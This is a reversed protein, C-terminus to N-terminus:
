FFSVRNDGTRGKWWGDRYGDQELVKLVQGERVSLEDRTQADYNKLVIARLQRFPYLLRTDERLLAFNERLSHNEYYKILDEISSFFRSVSLFYKKADGPGDDIMSIRMHKASGNYQLSVAYDGSKTGASDISMRVLFTGDERYMLKNRAVTREMEGVYWLKTALPDREIPTLPAAPPVLKLPLGCRGSFEICDKHVACSCKQCLYGQFILGKLYKRCYHCQIPSSFTHLELNHNTHSLARPQVNDHAEAIAKIVQDKLELTRVYITYAMEQAHKVLLFSYSRRGQNNLIARNHIEEVHYEMINLIDRYAFQNGKLQKCILICKDFIFVYRNRTKQDDHAKIKLETDKRLKGYDSLRMDPDHEWELITEQLNNIVNLHEVDRHAENIYRAVDLMSEWATKLESYEDHNKDTLEILKELLLHYKLIRQMPVSLVDRLKFRGNNVEKEYSIITQNFNEDEDCLEQLLSTAKTLNACYGGYILFKEKFNQFLQGLKVNNNTRIKVMELLFGSHVEYLEKIKYFVQSHHEPKMQSQLPTMFSVKLKNLVDVYNKETDLLEKIVFDRKEQPQSQEISSRAVLLDQYIEESTVGSDTVISSGIDLGRPASPQIKTLSQYIGEEEVGDECEASFGLIGSSEAKETKSLKSLTCLVKHFNTLEFLMSEEFLDAPSLGFSNKCAKIFISINRLCLFQAMIPKLNVDKIDICGPDIKCLLKCLIVGDRLLAALDAIHASEWNLKHDPRIIEWRTLWHVCEKWLEDNSDSYNRALAMAM